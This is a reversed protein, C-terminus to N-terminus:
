PDVMAGGCQAIHFAAIWAALPLLPFPYGFTARLVLAAVLYVAVASAALYAM